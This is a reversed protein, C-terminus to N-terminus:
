PTMALRNSANGEDEGASETAESAQLAERRKRQRIADAERTKALQEKARKQDASRRRACETEFQQRECEKRKAISAQQAEDDADFPKFFSYMNRSTSAPASSSATPKDTEIREVSVSQSAASHQVPGALDIVDHAAVSEGNAVDIGTSVQQSPGAGDSSFSM